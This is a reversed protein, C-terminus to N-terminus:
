CWCKESCYSCTRMERRDRYGRKQMRRGNWVNDVVSNSRIVILSRALLYEGPAKPSPSNGILSCLPLHLLSPAFCYLVSRLFCSSFAQLCKFPVSCVNQPPEICMLACAQCLVNDFGYTSVVFCTDFEDNTPSDTLM